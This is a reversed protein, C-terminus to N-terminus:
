KLREFSEVFHKKGEKLTPVAFAVLNVFNCIAIRFCGIFIGTSPLKITPQSEKRRKKQAEIRLSSATSAIPNTAAGM